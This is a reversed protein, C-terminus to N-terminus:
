GWMMDVIRDGVRPNDWYATHALLWQKGSTVAHGHLLWQKEQTQPGYRKEVPGIAGTLKVTKGFVDGSVVTDLRNYFNHWPFV